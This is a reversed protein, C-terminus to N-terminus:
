CPWQLAFFKELGSSNQFHYGFLWCFGVHGHSSSRQKKRKECSADILQLGPQQWDTQGRWGVRPRSCLSVGAKWVKHQFPTTFHHISTKSIRGGYIDISRWLVHQWTPPYWRPLCQCTTVLSISSISSNLKFGMFWNLSHILSRFQSNWMHVGDTTLWRHWSLDFAHQM